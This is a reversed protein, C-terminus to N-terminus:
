GGQPAAAGSTKEKYVIMYFASLIFSTLTTVVALVLSGVVPISNLFSLLWTLFGSILAVLISIGLLSGFSGKSAAFGKKLGEIIGAKDIIMAPLWLLLRIGFFVALVIVALLVLVMLILGVTGAASAILGLIGFIIGLGVGVIVGLIIGGVIWLLYQVFNDKLVDLTHQLGVEEGNLGKKIFGMTIPGALIALLMGLSSAAAIISANKLLVDMVYSLMQQTDGMGGSSLSQFMGTLQGVLVNVANGMILQPIAFSIYLPIVILFNKALFDISKKFYDM